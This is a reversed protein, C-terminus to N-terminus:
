LYKVKITDGRALLAKQRQKETMLQDYKGERLYSYVQQTLLLSKVGIKERSLMIKQHIAMRFGSAMKLRTEKEGMLSTAMSELRFLADIITNSHITAIVLRGNLSAQIAEVATESDRIEGIMIIGNTGVPYSRMAGRIAHSFGNQIVPIQYCIGDGHRGHLPFEPPDEVAICVGGFDDLRKKTISACTTSKGQGHGGSILFLGNQLFSEDEIYQTLHSPIGLSEYSFVEDPIRRLKYIKGTLANMAYCRYDIGSFKISFDEVTDHGNKASVIRQEKKCAESIKYMLTLLSKSELAMLPKSEIFAYGEDPAYEPIYFDTIDKLKINDEIM